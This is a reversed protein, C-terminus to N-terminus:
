ICHAPWIAMQLKVNPDLHKKQLFRSFVHIIFNLVCHAARGASRVNDSRINVRSPTM